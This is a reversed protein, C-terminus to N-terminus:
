FVVRRPFSVFCSFSHIEPVERYIPILLVRHFIDSFIFLGGGPDEETLITPIHRARETIPGSALQSPRTPNARQFVVIPCTSVLEEQPIM